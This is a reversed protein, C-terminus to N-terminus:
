GNAKDEPKILVENDDDDARLTVRTVKGNDYLRLFEGLTRTPNTSLPLQWYGLQDRERNYHSFEGQDDYEADLTKGLVKPQREVYLARLNPPLGIRIPAKSM